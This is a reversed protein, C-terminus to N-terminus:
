LSKRYVKKDFDRQYIINIQAVLSAYNDINKKFSQNMKEEESIMGDKQALQAGEDELILCSERVEQDFNEFITDESKISEADERIHFLLRDIDELIGYNLLYRDELDSISKLL